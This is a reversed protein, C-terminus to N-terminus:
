KKPFAVFPLKHKEMYFRCSARILENRSAFQAADVYKDLTELFSAPVSIEFKQTSKETEQAMENLCPAVRYLYITELHYRHVWLSGWTVM